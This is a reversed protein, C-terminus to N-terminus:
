FFKCICNFNHIKNLLKTIKQVSVFLVFKKAEDFFRSMRSYVTKYLKQDYSLDKDFKALIHVMIFKAAKYIPDDSEFPLKVNDEMDLTAHLAMCVEEDLLNDFSSQFDECVSNKPIADGGGGIDAGSEIGASTNASTANQTIARTGIRQQKGASKQKEAEKLMARRKRKEIKGFYSRARNQAARIKIDENLREWKVLYRERHNQIFYKKRQAASALLEQIREQYAIREALRKNWSAYQDQNAKHIRQERLNKLNKKLREKKFQFLKKLAILQKRQLDNRVERHKEMKLQNIVKKHEICTQRIAEVVHIFAFRELTKEYLRKFHESRRRDIDRKRLRIDTYTHKRAMLNRYDDNTIKEANDILARDHQETQQIYM